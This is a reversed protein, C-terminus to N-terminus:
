REHMSTAEAESDIRNSSDRQEIFWYLLGLAVIIAALGLLTMASTEKIDLIILKRVVTLVAILIIGKTQIFVHPTRLSNIISRNFEMAILVTMIMGFLQQFGGVGFLSEASSFQQYTAILLKGMSLLITISIIGVLVLGVLHEFRGYYSETKDINNPNVM